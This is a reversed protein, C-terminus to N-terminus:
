RQVEIKKVYLPNVAHAPTPAINKTYKYVDDYNIRINAKYLSKDVNNYESNTLYKYDEILENNKNFLGVFVGNKEEEVIYIDDHNISVAKILLSSVTKIPINLTYALTKAITVGIRVGTFSGPGNVVIIENLDHVDISADKLTYFIAPMTSTSHDYDSILEKEIICDGDKYLAIVIKNCHTDLYLTYM